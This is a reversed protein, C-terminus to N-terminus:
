NQCETNKTRAVDGPGRSQTAIMDPKHKNNLEISLINKNQMAYRKKIENTTIIKPSAHIQYKVICKKNLNRASQFLHDAIKNQM